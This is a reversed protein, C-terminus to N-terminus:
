SNRQATLVLGLTAGANEAAHVAMPSFLSQDKGKMYSFLSGLLSIPILVAMKSTGKVIQSGPTHTWGFFLSSAVCVIPDRNIHKIPNHIPYIFRDFLSVGDEIREQIWGRFIIEELIPATVVAHFIMKLNGAALLLAVAQTPPSARMVIVLPVVMLRFAILFALTVKNIGKWSFWDCQQEQTTRLTAESLLTVTAAVFSIAGALAWSCGMQVALFAFAALAVAIVKVVQHSQLAQIRPLPLPPTTATTLPPATPLASAAM